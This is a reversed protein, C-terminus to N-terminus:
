AAVALPLSPLGLEARLINQFRTGALVRKVFAECQQPPKRKHFEWPEEIQTEECWGQFGHEGDLINEKHDRLREQEEQLWPPAPPFEKGARKEERLHDRIAKFTGDGDYEDRGDALKGLFYGPDEAARLLFRRLDGDGGINGWWHAYDGWDSIATFTGDSGITLIAWGEGPRDNPLHYRHVVLDDERPWPGLRGAAEDAARRETVYRM